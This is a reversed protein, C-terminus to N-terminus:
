NGQPAPILQGTINDITQYVPNILPQVGNAIIIGFFAVTLAACVIHAIIWGFWDTDSYGKEEEEKLTNSTIKTLKFWVVMIIILLIGFFIITTIANIYVQRYEAQWVVQGDQGIKHALPTIATVIQQISSQSMKTNEM